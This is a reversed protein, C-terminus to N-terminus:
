SGGAPSPAATAWAPVVCIFGLPGAEDARLQHVENPEIYVADGAGIESWTDGLLVRGSGQVVVVGHQHRHYELSSHGGAPITFYRVIFDGAGEDRGILIRRTAGHSANGETYEKVPVTSYDWTMGGAVSVQRHVVGM